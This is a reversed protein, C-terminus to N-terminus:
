PEQGFSASAYIKKGRICLGIPLLDESLQLNYYDCYNM